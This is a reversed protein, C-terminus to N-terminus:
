IFWWLCWPHLSPLITLLCANSLWKLQSFPFDCAASHRKKSLVLLPTSLHPLCEWQQQRQPSIELDERLSSSLCTTRPIFLPWMWINQKKREMELDLSQETGPDILWPTVASLRGGRLCFVFGPNQWAIEGLPHNAVVHMQLCGHGAWHNRDVGSTKSGLVCHLM